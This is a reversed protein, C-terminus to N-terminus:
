MFIDKARYEFEKDSPSFLCDNQPEFWLLKGEATYIFNWAHYAGETMWGWVIGCANLGYNETVRAVFCRSFDDCDFQEALYKKKEVFDNKIIEKWREESVTYYKGDSIAKVQVDPYLTKIANIIEDPKVEKIEDLGIKVVRAEETIADKLKNLITLKEEDSLKMDELTEILYYGTEKLKDLNMSFTVKRYHRFLLYLTVIGSGVATFFGSFFSSIDIM